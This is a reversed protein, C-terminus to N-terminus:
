AAGTAKRCELLSRECTRAVVDAEWGGLFLTWEGEPNKNLARLANEYARVADSYRGEARYISGLNMHALVFDPDIYVTRKLESVAHVIDGERQHIVGLL